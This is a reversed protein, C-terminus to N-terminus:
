LIDVMDVNCLFHRRCCIRQIGLEKLTLYEATKEETNVDQLVKDADLIVVDKQGSTLKNRLLVKQYKEWKDSILSGCTMCRVPIIM